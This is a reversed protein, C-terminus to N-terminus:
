LIFSSVQSTLSQSQKNLGQVANGISEASQKAGQSLENVGELNSNIEDIVSTQEEIASAVQLIRDSISVLSSSINNLNEESKKAYDVTSTAKEQGDKMSEVAKNVGNRLNEIMNNIDGTSQQTKSALTRVEDAVVAFGRGQEGARAAEIAANLALLNTQEAIGKIVDLVSAINTTEEVLEQIVLGSNSVNDALSEIERMARSFDHAIQKATSDANKAEESVQQTNNSVEQIALGMENNATAVMEMSHAYQESNSVSDQAGEKLSQSASNIELSVAKVNTMLQQVGTLFQNFSHALKGIEDEGMEPMRKTLDGKGSALENLAVSLDNLPGIIMKPFLVGVCTTIIFVILVLVVTNTMSDSKVEVTLAQLSAAEQGLSEGLIDLKGRMSEFVNDLSGTSLETAEDISVSQNRIKDVLSLTQPRWNSFSTLFVKAEEKVKKSVDLSLIKKVRDEVQQINESHAKLYDDNLLGMAMTREAVQAQYLDRDANLVLEISPIYEENIHSFDNSIVQMSNIQLISVLLLLIGVLAIPLRLKKALGLDSWKM